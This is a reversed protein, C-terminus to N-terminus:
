GQVGPSVLHCAVAKSTMPFVIQVGDALMCKIIVPDEFSLEKNHEDPLNYLVQMMWYQHHHAAVDYMISTVNAIMSSLRQILGPHSTTGTHLRDTSNSDNLQASSTVLDSCIPQNPNVRNGKVMQLTALRAHSERWFTTVHICMYILYNYACQGVDSERWLSQTESM